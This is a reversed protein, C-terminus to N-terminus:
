PEDCDCDSRRCDANVSPAEVGLRRELVFEVNSGAEVCEPSLQDHADFTEDGSRDVLAVYCLDAGEPLQYSGTEDDYLYTGDAARACSPLEVTGGAEPSFTTVRCSPELQPTSRDGDAACSWFCNPAHADVIGAGLAAMAESYDPACASYLSGPLAEALARMRVPPVATNGEADTCGPAVGWALQTEPDESDAYTVSWDDGGGEVGAIVTFLLRPDSSVQWKEELLGTLLGQYRDLPHLVATAANAPDGDVDLNVPECSDYASPDGVCEVGANWCVASSPFSASPDEWFVRGGDQEFIASWSKDYSCDVEDTLIVVALVSATGLFGYSAEDETQARRLALYMSELPSEFGCGDIGQPAFCKFAAAPDTGAPLNTEGNVRQLWPRAVAADDFRSPTPTIALDASDLDCQSTCALERADIEGGNYVFADLREACPSLVLQGAEPTTTGAPCWPNGNDTTTFGIRFDVGAADLEAFLADVGANLKVQHPAMSGSNDIVFLLDVSLGDQVPFGGWGGSSEACVPGLAAGDISAVRPCASLALAGLLPTAM